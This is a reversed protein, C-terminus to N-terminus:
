TQTHTHARADVAVSTQTGHRPSCRAGCLGSADRETVCDGGGFVFEERLELPRGQNGERTRDRRAKTCNTENQVIVSRAALGGHQQQKPARTKSHDKEFRVTGNRETGFLVADFHPTARGENPSPTSPAIKKHCSNYRPTTQQITTAKNTEVIDTFCVSAELRTWDGVRECTENRKTENCNNKRKTKIQEEITTPTRNALRDTRSADPRPTTARTTTTTTTTPGSNSPNRSENRQFRHSSSM